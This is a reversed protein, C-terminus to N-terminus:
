SCRLVTRTDDKASCNYLHGAKTQRSDTTFALGAPMVFARGSLKHRLEVCPRKCRSSCQCVSLDVGTLATSFAEFLDGRAEDDFKKWKAGVIHCRVGTQSM